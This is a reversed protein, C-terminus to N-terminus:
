CVEEVPVIQLATDAESLVWDVQATVERPGYAVPHIIDIVISGYFFPAAVSEESRGSPECCTECRRRGAHRKALSCGSMKGQESVTRHLWPLPTSPTPQKSQEHTSQEASRKSRFKIIVIIAQGANMPATRQMKAGIRWGGLVGSRLVLM